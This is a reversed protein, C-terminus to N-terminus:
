SGSNLEIKPECAVKFTHIESPNSIQIMYSDHLMKDNVNFVFQNYGQEVPLSETQVVQGRSNTMQMSTIVKYDSYFRVVLKNSFPVPGYLINSIAKVRKTEKSLNSNASAEFPDSKVNIDWLIENNGNSSKISNLILWAEEPGNSLMASFYGKNTIGVVVQRAEFPSKQSDDPEGTRYVLEIMGKQFAIKGSAFGIQYKAEGDSLPFSLQDHNQQNFWVKINGCMAGSLTKIERSNLISLGLTLTHRGTNMVGKRLSISNLVQIHQDMNVGSSNDIVLNKIVSPIGNGTHQSVTGNFVYTADKHYDKKGTMQINGTMSKKDIGADSGIMLTAAPGITIDGNGELITTGLELTGNCILGGQNNFKSIRISNSEVSVHSGEDIVLQNIPIEDSIVMSKRNTVGPPENAPIWNEGDYVEWIVVDEWNGSATTRYDGSSFAKSEKIEYFNFYLILLFIFLLSVAAGAVLKLKTSLFTRQRTKLKRRSM